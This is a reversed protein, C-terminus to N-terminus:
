IHLSLSYGQLHVKPPFFNSGTGFLKLSPDMTFEYSKFRDLSLGRAHAISLGGVVWFILM